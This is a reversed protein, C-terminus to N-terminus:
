SRRAPLCCGPQWCVCSLMSFFGAWFPKNNSIMLLTIMGFLIMLLKPQTGSTVMTAFSEPMLPILFALVGVLKNKLYAVAVLYTVSSLLGVLLVNMFRVAMFDRLGISERAVMAIASLYPAGPGKIDVVDRCPLQGRLISQAVYDYFAPDGVEIRHWPRYSIMVAAGLFFATIVFARGVSPEVLVL